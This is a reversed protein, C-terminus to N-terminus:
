RGSFALSYAKPDSFWMPSLSQSIPDPFARPPTCGGSVGSTCPTSCTRGLGRDAGTVLATM